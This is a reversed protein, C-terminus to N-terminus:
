NREVGRRGKKTYIEKYITKALLAWINEIPNLDSSYAPFALLEVNINAFESGEDYILVTIKNLDYHVAVLRILCRKEIKSLVLVKENETLKPM